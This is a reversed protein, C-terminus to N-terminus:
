TWRSKGCYSTGAVELTGHGIEQVLFSGATRFRVAFDVSGSAAGVNKLVFSIQQGRRTMLLLNSERPDETIPKM